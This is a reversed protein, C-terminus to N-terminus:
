IVTHLINSHFIPKCTYLVNYFLCTLLTIVSLNLVHCVSLLCKIVSIAILIVTASSDIDPIIVIL